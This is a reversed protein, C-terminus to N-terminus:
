RMSFLKTSDFHVEVLMYAVAALLVFLALVTIKKVNSRYATRNM